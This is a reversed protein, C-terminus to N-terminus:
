EDPELTFALPYGLQRAATQANYVRRHAEQYPLVTVLALGKYHAEYMVEVAKKANLDFINCLVATVFDMPTINDNHIIVKFPKELEEDGMVVFEFEVDVDPQTPAIVTDPAIM